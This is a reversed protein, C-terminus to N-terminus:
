FSTPESESVETMYIKWTGSNFTPQTSSHYYGIGKIEGSFGLESATYVSQSYSHNYYVYAPIQKASTTATSDGVVTTLTQASLQIAFALAMVITLLKKM